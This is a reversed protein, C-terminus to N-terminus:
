EQGRIAKAAISAAQGWEGFDDISDAIQADKERQKAAIIAAFLPIAVKDKPLAVPKYLFVQKEVMWAVPELNVHAHPTGFHPCGEDECTMGRKAANHALAMDCLADIHDDEMYGDMHLEFRIQEIQQETLKMDTGKYVRCDSNGM